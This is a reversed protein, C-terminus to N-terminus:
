IKRFAETLAAETAIYRGYNCRFKRLRIVETFGEERVCSERQRHHASSGGAGGRVDGASAASEMQVHVRATRTHAHDEIRPRVTEVVLRPRGSTACRHHGGDVCGMFAGGAPRVADRYAGRARHVGCAKGIRTVRVFRRMSAVGQRGRVRGAEINLSWSGVCRRGRPAGYRAM